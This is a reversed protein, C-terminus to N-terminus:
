SISCREIRLNSKYLKCFRINLTYMLCSSLNQSKNHTGVRFTARVQSSPSEFILLSNWSILFGISLIKLDDTSNMSSLIPRAILLSHSIRPFGNIDESFGGWRSFRRFSLKFFLGSLRLFSKSKLSFIREVFFGCIVSLVSKSLWVFSPLLIFFFGDTNFVNGLISLWSHSLTGCQVNRCVRSENMIHKIITKLGIFLLENSEIESKCINYLITRAIFNSSHISQLETEKLEEWLNLILKNDTKM